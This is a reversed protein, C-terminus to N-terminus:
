SGTSPISLCPFDAGQLAAKWRVQALWQLRMARTTLVPSILLLLFLRRYPTRHLSVNQKMSQLALAATAHYRLTLLAVAQSGTPRRVTVFWTRPRADLLTLFSLSSLSVVIFPISSVSRFFQHSFRSCVRYTTRMM